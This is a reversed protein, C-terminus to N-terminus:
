FKDIILFSLKMSASTLFIFFYSIISGLYLLAPFLPYAFSSLSFYATLVISSLTLVGFVLFLGHKDLLIYFLVRYM